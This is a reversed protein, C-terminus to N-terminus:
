LNWTTEALIEDIVRWRHPGFAMQNHDKAALELHCQNKQAPTNSLVVKLDRGVEAMRHFLLEERWKFPTSFLSFFGGAKVM